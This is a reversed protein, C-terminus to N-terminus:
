ELPISFAMKTGVGPTSEVTMQGGHEEVIHKCIYLGLGTGTEQSGASRSQFRTFLKSIDEPAIGTGTDTM